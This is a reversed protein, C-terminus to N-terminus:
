SGYGGALGARRQAPLLSGIAQRLHQKREILSAIAACATCIAALLVIFRLGGDGATISFAELLRLMPWHLVYLTFSFGAAFRIPRELGELLMACTGSLQGLGVFCFSVGVGLGLDTLVSGSYRFEAPALGSAASLSEALPDAYLNTLACLSLGILLCALAAKTGIPRKAGRALWAGMLWVAFLLLVRFGAALALVALWVVRRQGRLYWAAAFLAYYWVEYCLSWYCPNWLAGEGFRSESLFIAPLALNAATLQDYASLQPLPHTALRAAAVFAVLTFAIALWAVPLIRAARAIAYKGLTTGSRQLSSTIVLGSLVFFVVVADHQLLTSFPWPGTYFELQVTHGALVALAALARVLDLAISQSRNISGFGM